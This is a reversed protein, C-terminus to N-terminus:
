NDTDTDEVDVRCLGHSELERLFHESSMHLLNPRDGTWVKCRHRMDRRFETRTPYDSWQSARVARETQAWSSGTTTSGDQWTITIKV